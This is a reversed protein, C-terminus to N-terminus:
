SHNPHNERDFGFDEIERLVSEVKLGLICHAIAAICRDDCGSLNKEPQLVRVRPGVPHVRMLFNVRQQTSTSPYANLVITPIGLGGGVHAPGSDNALLLTSGSLLTVTEALSTKGILNRVWNGGRREIEKGSPEDAAGGVILIQLGFQRHIYDAV